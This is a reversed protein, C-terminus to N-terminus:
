CLRWGSTHLPPPPAWEVLPWSSSLHSHAMNSKGSENTTHEERSDNMGRSSQVSRPPRIPLHRVDFFADQQPNWFGRCRIDVCSDDQINASLGHMMEGSLPQLAPETETLTRVEEMLSATLDRIDNHRHIPLGGKMCSLAHQVNNAKGCACTAPLGNPQWGYRLALADRFAGKHLALGHEEIPLTGLWASAGKQQALIVATQTSSTLLGLTEKMDEENRHKNADKVYKQAQKQQAETEFGSEESQKLISRVLPETVAISNSLEHSAADTCLGPPSQAIDCSPCMSEYRM